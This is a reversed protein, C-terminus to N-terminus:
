GTSIIEKLEKVQNVSFESDLVSGQDVFNGCGPIEM